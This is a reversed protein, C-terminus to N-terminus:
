CADDHNTFIDVLDQNESFFKERIEKRRHLEEEYSDNIKQRRSRPDKEM